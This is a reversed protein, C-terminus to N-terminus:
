RGAPWWCRGGSRDAAFVRTTDYSADQNNSRQNVHQRLLFLLRNDSKWAVWDLHLSLDRRALQTSHAEGTRWDVVVLEEGRPTEQIAAVYQGNPSIQASWIAPNRTFSQVTVPPPASNSVATEDATVLLLALASLVSQAVAM